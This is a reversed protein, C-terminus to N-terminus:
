GKYRGLLGRKKFLYVLCAGAFCLPVGLAAGTSTGGATIWRDGLMPFLASITKIDSTGGLGAKGALMEANVVYEMDWRSPFKTVYAEGYLQGAAILEALTVSERGGICGTDVIYYKHAVGIDRLNRAYDSADAFHLRGDPEACILAATLDVHDTDNVSVFFQWMGGLEREQHDPAYTVVHGYVCGDGNCYIAGSVDEASEYTGVATDRIASHPYYMWDSYSGDVAIGTDLILGDPKYPKMPEEAIFCTDESSFDIVPEQSTNADGLGDQEPLLDLGDIIDSSNVSRGCIITFINDKFFDQPIYIESYRIDYEVYSQVYAGPVPNWMSDLVVPRAGAEYRLLGDEGDDYSIVFRASEYMNTVAYIYYGGNEFAASWQHVGNDGSLMPMVSWQVAFSPMAAEEEVPIAGAANDDDENFPMEQEWPESAADYAPESTEAASVPISGVLMIFCILLATIIKLAKNHM